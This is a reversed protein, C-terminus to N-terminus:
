HDYVAGPRVQALCKMTKSHNRKLTWQPVNGADANPYQIHSPMNDDHPINAVLKILAGNAQAKGVQRLSANLLDDLARDVVSDNGHQVLKQGRVIDLRPVLFHQIQGPRMEVDVEQLGGAYRTRDSWRIDATTIAQTVLLVCYGDSLRGRHFGLRREIMEPTFGSIASAVTIDGALQAQEGTGYQFGYAM